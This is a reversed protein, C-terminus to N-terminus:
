FLILITEFFGCTIMIVYFSNRGSRTTVNQTSSELEPKSHLWSFKLRVLVVQNHQKPLVLLQPCWFRKFSCSLSTLSKAHSDKLVWLVCYFRGSFYSCCNAMAISTTIVEFRDELVEYSHIQQPKGWKNSTPYDIFFSVTRDEQIPTNVCLGLCSYSPLTPYSSVYWGAYERTRLPSCGPLWSNVEVGSHAEFCSIMSTGFIGPSDSSPYRRPKCVFIYRIEGCIHVLIVKHTIFLSSFVEKTKTAM